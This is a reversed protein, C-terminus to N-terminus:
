RVRRRPDRPPRAIRPPHSRPETRGSEQNEQGRRGGARAPGEEAVDGGRGADIEDLVDSEELPDDQNMVRKILAEADRMATTNGISRSLNRQARHEADIARASIM